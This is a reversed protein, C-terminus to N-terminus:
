GTCSEPRAMSVDRLRCWASTPWSAGYRTRTFNAWVRIREVGSMTAVSAAAPSRRSSSLQQARRLFNCITSKGGYQVSSAVSDGLMYLFDVDGMPTGISSNQNFQLKLRTRASTGRAWEMDIADMTESVAVECEPSLKRIAHSLEQDYQYMDVRAHISASEALGADIVDPYKTRLWCTSAGSYSGGEAIVPARLSLGMQQKVHKVLAVIDALNQEVSLFALNEVTSENGPVSQGFFRHECHLQLGRLSATLNDAHNLPPSAAGESPMVVVLPASASGDWSANVLWYRIQHRRPDEPHAHDLPVSLHRTEVRVPKPSSLPPRVVGELEQGFPTGRLSEPVVNLRSEASDLLVLALLLAPLASLM